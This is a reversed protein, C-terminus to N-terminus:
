ALLGKITRNFARYDSGYMVKIHGTKQKSQQLYTLASIEVPLQTYALTFLVIVL